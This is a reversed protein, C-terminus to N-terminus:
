QKIGVGSRRLVPELAMDDEIMKEIHEQQSRKKILCHNKLWTYNSRLLRVNVQVRKETKM